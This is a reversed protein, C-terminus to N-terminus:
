SLWEAMNVKAPDVYDELKHTKPKRNRLRRAVPVVPESSGEEEVAVERVSQVFLPAPTPSARWVDSPWAPATPPRGTCYSTSRGDSNPITAIDFQQMMLARHMHIGPNFMPQAMIQPYGQAQPLTASPLSRAQNLANQSNQFNM